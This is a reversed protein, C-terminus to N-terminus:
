ASKPVLADWFALEPPYARLRTGLSSDGPSAKFARAAGVFADVHATRLAPSLAPVPQERAFRAICQHVDWGEAGERLFGRDLAADFAANFRQADWAEGDFLARLADASTRGTIFLCAAKVLLRADDGLFSWAAGFSSTTRDALADRLEAERHHRVQYAVSKAVACLEVTIGRAKHVLRDAYSAAHRPIIKGVLARGDDDPFLDVPVETWHAPWYAHTSTALVHVAAGGLPLWQALTDADAVNDYILLTPREGLHALVRRCHADLREEPFRPLGLHHGLHILAAPPTIALPVWFTGGPYRASRQLGQHQAIRSKGVGPQGFLVAITPHTLDAFALDLAALGKVRGTFPVDAQDSPITHRPPERAASFQAVGIGGAGIHQEGVHAGGRPRDTSSLAWM